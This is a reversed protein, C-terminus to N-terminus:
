RVSALEPRAKAAAPRTESPADALDLDRARLIVLDKCVRCRYTMVPRDPGLVGNLAVRIQTLADSVLWVPLTRRSACSCRVRIPVAPLPSDWAGEMLAEKSHGDRLPPLQQAPQAYPTGPSSLM